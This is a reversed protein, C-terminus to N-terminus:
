RIEAPTIAAPRSRVFEVLIQVHKVIIIPAVEQVTVPVVLVPVGLIIEVALM